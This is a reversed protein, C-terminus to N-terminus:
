KEVDYVSKPEQGRMEDLIEMGGSLEGTVERRYRM